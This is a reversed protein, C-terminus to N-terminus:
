SRCTTTNCGPATSHLTCYILIHQLLLLYIVARLFSCFYIDKSSISHRIKPRSLVKHPVLLPTSPVMACVAATSPATSQPLFCVVSCLPRIFSDVTDDATVSSFYADATTKYPCCGSPNFLSMRVTQAHVQAAILWCLSM